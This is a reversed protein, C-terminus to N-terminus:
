RYLYSMLPIRCDIYMKKIKFLLRIRRSLENHDYFLNLFFFLFHHFHFFTVFKHTYKMYHLGSNQISVRGSLIVTDRKFIFKFPNKDGVCVLTTNKM